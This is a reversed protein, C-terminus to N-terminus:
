NNDEELKQLKKKLAEAEKEGIKGLASAAASRVQSNNDEKLVQILQPVASAAKERLLGLTKAAYSRVQPNNDKLAQTFAPLEKSIPLQNITASLYLAFGARLRVTVDKDKLAQILASVILQQNSIHINGLSEAANSRVIPNEDQLAEILAPAVSELSSIQSIKVILSAAGARAKADKSKLKELLKNITEIKTKSFNDHTKENETIQNRINVYKQLQSDSIEKGRVNSMPILSLGLSLCLLRVFIQIKNKKM